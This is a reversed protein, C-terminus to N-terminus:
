SLRPRYLWFGAEAGAPAYAQQLANRVASTLRTGQIPGDLPHMLAVLSFRQAGIADLIPQQSWHNEVALLQFIQFEFAIRKGAAVALGSNDTLLDGPERALEDIFRTDVRLPEVESEGVLSMYRPSTPWLMDAATDVVQIATAQYGPVAVLLSGSVVVPAVLRLAPFSALRCAALALVASTAATLELWYNSSAGLKAVTVLTLLSGLFYARWVREGPAAPVVLAAMAALGSLGNYQMFSGMLAAFTRLDPENTNAAVIHWLFWGNTLWEAVLVGAVSGGLVIGAFRTLTHRRPWLAIAVAVPAVVYTQKTFLAFLFLVAALSPRDAVFLALGILTFCLALADVRQLSAWLLVTLNQTLFLGAALLGVWRRGSIRRLSWALAATGVLTAALSLARGTTYGSDGILRQLGGVALYYMPAYATHMMPVQDAPAYLRAGRAVDRAGDLLWSEGYTLEELPRLLRCLATLLFLLVYMAMLGSSLAWLAAALAAGRQRESDM